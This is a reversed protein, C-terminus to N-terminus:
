EGIVQLEFLHGLEARVDGMTTGSSYSMMLNGLPDVLFIQGNEWRGLRESVLEAAAPEAILLKPFASRDLIDAAGSEGPLFVTQLRTMKPGLSLRIQRIHELTEVCTADCQEDALGVLTWVERFRFPGASSEFVTAPLEVPPTVLEGHQIHAAPRWDNPGFYLWAAALIPIIFLASIALLILRGRLQQNTMPTM